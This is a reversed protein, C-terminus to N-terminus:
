VNLCKHVHGRFTHIRVNVPCFELNWCFAHIIIEVGVNLSLECWQKLIFVMIGFFCCQFSWFNLLEKWFTSSSIWNQLNYVNWCFIRVNRRLNSINQKKPSSIVFRFKPFFFVLIDSNQDLNSSIESGDGRVFHSVIWSFFPHVLHCSIHSFLFMIFLHQLQCTENKVLFFKGDIIIKANAKMNSTSNSIWMKNRLILISVILCYNVKVIQIGEEKLLRGSFSAGFTFLSFKWSAVTTFFSWKWSAGFTFVLAYIWSWMSVTSYLPRERGGEPHHQKGGREKQAPPAAKPPEAITSSGWRTHHQRRRRGKPHHQRGGRGGKPHHTPNARSSQCSLSFTNKTDM